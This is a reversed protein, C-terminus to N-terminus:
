PELAKTRAGAEFSSLHGTSLLAMRAAARMRAPLKEDRAAAALWAVAEPSGDDSIIRVLDGQLAARTARAQGKLPGQLRRGFEILARRAEPLRIEGVARMSAQALVPKEADLFGALTPVAPAGLVALGDFAAAVEDNPAPIVVTSEGAETNDPAPAPPPGAKA